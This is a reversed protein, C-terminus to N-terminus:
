NKWKKLNEKATLWQHNKPAFAKKIEKVNLSGNKNVLKFSSIPKIHDIHYNKINKPFPKLKNIIKEYNILESKSKIIVGKKRYYNIAHNLRTRLNSKVWYEKDEKLKKKQYKNIKEKNKPDKRYKRKAVRRKRKNKESLEKDLNTYYYNMRKKQELKQNKYYYNRRKEKLLNKNLCYYKKSYERVKKVGKKSKRYKDKNYRLRCKISCYKQNGNEVEFKKNCLKCNEKM